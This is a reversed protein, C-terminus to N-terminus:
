NTGNAKPAETMAANNDTNESAGQDTPDELPVSVGDSLCILWQRCLAKGADTMMFADFERSLRDGHPHNRSFLIYMNNTTLPPTTAYDQAVEEGLFNKMDLWGVEEEEFLIDAREADLFRWASETNAAIEAEIGRRTFEREYWYSAVGIPRLDLRLLDDLGNVDLGLPFRSKKYFGKQYAHAIPQRPINFQEAREDNSLWSFTAVYDGRRTLEYARQWSLFDLKVRYGMARFVTLVRESHKGYNTMTETVMPPWESVVFRIEFGTETIAPQIDDARTPSAGIWLTFVMVLLIPLGM